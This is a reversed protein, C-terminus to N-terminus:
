IIPVLKNEKIGFVAYFYGISEFYEACISIIKGFLAVFNYELYSKLNNNNIQKICIPQENLFSNSNECDNVFM